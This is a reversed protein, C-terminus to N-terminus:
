FDPLQLRWSSLWFYSPHHFCVGACCPLAQFLCSLDHACKPMLFLQLLLDPPLTYAQPPCPKSTMQSGGLALEISTYYRSSSKRPYSSYFLSSINGKEKIKLNKKLIIIIKLIKMPAYNSQLTM